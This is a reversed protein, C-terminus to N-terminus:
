RNRRASEHEQKGEIGLRRNVTVPESARWM